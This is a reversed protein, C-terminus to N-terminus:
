YELINLDSAHNLRGHIDLNLKRLKDSSANIYVEIADQINPDYADSKQRKKAAFAEPDFGDDPRWVNAEATTTAPPAQSFTM